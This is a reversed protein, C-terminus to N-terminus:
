ENYKRQKIKKSPYLQKKPIKDINNTNKAPMGGNKM